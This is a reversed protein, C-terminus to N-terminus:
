VLRGQPELVPRPMEALLPPQQQEAVAVQPPSAQLLPEQIGLLDKLATWVSGPSPIYEHSILALCVEFAILYIIILEMRHTSSETLLARLVGLLNEGHDLKENYAKFRSEIDLTACISDYHHEVKSNEWYIEPDDLFNETDLNARQRLRLLTGMKRIVERRHMPVKGAAELRGPVSAVEELYATLASEQVSLRASRALGQSFALRALLPTWSPPEEDQGSTEEITKSADAMTSSSSSSPQAAEENGSSLDEKPDLTPAQGMVIVDGVVRTVQDDAVLYEMAEDGIEDYPGIEVEGTRRGSSREAALSIAKKTAGSASTTRSRIVARLFRRSQDETMGWTVYSGSRFIFADGGGGSQSAAGASSSSSSSSAPRPWSPIYLVEDDELLQWGDPLRGSEILAEFDYGEATAYAVVDRLRHHYFGSQPQKPTATSPAILTHSLELASALMRLQQEQESGEKAEASSGQALVEEFQGARLASPAASAGRVASLQERLARSASAQAKAKATPTLKRNRTSSPVAATATASSSPGSSVVPKGTVGSGRGGASTASTAKARSIIGAAASSGPQGRSSAAAAAAARVFGQRVLMTTPAM